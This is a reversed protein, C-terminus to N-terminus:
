LGVPAFISMSVQFAIVSNVISITPASIYNKGGSIISVIGVTNSDRITIFDDIDATPQLTKDSSYEFGENIVRVSDANGITDSTPVISADTGNSGTVGSFVPVREYNSGGSIIDIKSIPGTANVSNTDYSLVNCETSAYALKEPIESLFITATLKFKDEM